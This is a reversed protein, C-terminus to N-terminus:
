KEVKKFYKEITNSVFDYANSVIDCVEEETYAKDIHTIHCGIYCHTLEHILTKKKRDLPLEKDLYIIQMDHYTTGFYRGNKVPQDELERDARTKMEQKMSEQPLEQILWKCGNIEFQM